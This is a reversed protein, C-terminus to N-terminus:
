PQGRGNTPVTRSYPRLIRRLRGAEYEECRQTQRWWACTRCAPGAEGTELQARMLDRQRALLPKPDDYLVNGLLFEDPAGASCTWCIGDTLVHLGGGLSSCPLLAPAEWLPPHDPQGQYYRSTFTVEDAIEGWVQEFLTAEDANAAQLICSAKIAFTGRNDRVQRLQRARHELERYNGAAKIRSYTAPSAADVSLIILRVSTEPLAKIITDNLYRGNTALSVAIGREALYRLIPLFQPNRLPEGPGFISVASLPALEAMRDLLRQTGALDLLDRGQRRHMYADYYDRAPPSRDVGYFPCMACAMDCKEALSLHLGRPRDLYRALLRADGAVVAAAPVYRNVRCATFDQPGPMSGPPANPPVLRSVAAASYLAFPVDALWVPDPLSLDAGCARHAAFVDRTLGVPLSQAALAESWSLLFLDEGATLLSPVDPAAEIRVTEGAAALQSALGGAAGYREPPAQIVIRTREM